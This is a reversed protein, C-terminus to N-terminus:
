LNNKRNRNGWSIYSIMKTGRGDEHARARLLYATVPRLSKIHDFEDSIDIDTHQDLSWCLQTRQMNINLESLTHIDNKILVYLM